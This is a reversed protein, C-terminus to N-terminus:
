VLQSENHAQSLVPPLSRNHKSCTVSTGEDKLCKCIGRGPEHGSRSIGPVGVFCDQMICLAGVDDPAIQEISRVVADYSASILMKADHVGFSTRTSTVETQM